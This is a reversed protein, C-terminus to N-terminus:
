TGLPKQDDVPRTDSQYKPTHCERTRKSANETPTKAESLKSARADNEVAAM